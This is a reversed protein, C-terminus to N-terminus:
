GSDAEEMDALVAELAEVSVPKVLHKDIGAARTRQRDAEQGWGTLAIIVIAHGNELERIRRSAELGDMRPMGLDMFIIQPTFAQAADIAEIGDAATRVEHGCMTLLMALSRAADLNDDVVLIRKPKIPASATHTPRESAPAAAPEAIPLTVTFLSGQQVGDSHATVRGNHMDVLMRVLALGIGLGGDSRVETPHVQAFMEFVDELADPAIGIGNDKVTVIVNSDARRMALQIKGGRDTYKASNSILNSFVQALRNPDAYVFLADSPIDVLLEQQKSEILMGSAEIANALVDSLLVNQRRLELKGRTIRSVDLLDDVLRVLHTMQRDMMAVTDQIVPDAATRLRLIQLGNRVPALPNRLEHALVALFEDKRRENERLFQEVEKRATINRQTGWVRLLKGNDIVPVLSSSFYLKRGNVTHQQSEANIISFGAAALERLHARAVDADPSLMKSIPRDVLEEARTKGYIRALADNLEALRAHRYVHEVQADLPLSLDLPEDLEYRWIAESSNAVFARYREETQRLSEEIRKRDTIDRFNIALGQPIPYAHVDMWRKSYVSQAEFEVPCQERIARHYERDFITGLMDPFEEWMNRGILAERPRNTYQVAVHNVYTFRWYRDLAFFGDSISDILAAREAIALEQTERRVADARLRATQLMARIRARLERVTYPKALYSDAGLEFGQVRLAEHAYGSILLIPITATSPTNRLTRVLEIGDIGPMLIDTVILEPRARLIARLAQEGDAAADVQYEDSLAEALHERLSHEDEVFLIRPKGALESTPLKGPRGGAGGGRALISSSAPRSWLRLRDIM